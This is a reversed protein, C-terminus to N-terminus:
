RTEARQQEEGRENRREGEGTLAHDRRDHVAGVIGIDGGGLALLESVPVLPVFTDFTVGILVCLM